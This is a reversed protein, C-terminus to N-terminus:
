QRRGAALRLLLVLAAGGAAGWLLSRQDGGVLYGLAAGAVTATLDALGVAALTWARLELHDRVSLVNQLLARLSFFLALVPAAVIFGPALASTAVWPALPAALLAVAVAGVSMALGHAAVLRGFARATSAGLQRARTVDPLLAGNIAVSALAFPRQVLDLALLAGASGALGFLGAVGARLALPAGLHLISALAAPMGYRRLRRRRGGGPEAPAAPPLPDALRNFLVGGLHGVLFGGLASAASGGALAGIGTAIFVCVARTGQMRVFRSPDGRFRAMTQQLDSASQLPVLAAALAAVSVAIGSTVAAAAAVPAVILAARKFDHWLDGRLAAEEGADGPYFRMASLRIWEFGAIAAFQAAATAMSFLAFEAAPLLRAVVLVTALTLAAQLVFSAVVTFRSAIV